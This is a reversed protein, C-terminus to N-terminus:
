PIIMTQPINFDYTDSYVYIEYMEGSVLGKKIKWDDATVSYIKGGDSTIVSTTTACVKNSSKMIYVDNETLGPVSKELSIVCGERSVDNIIFYNKIKSKKISISYITETGDCSVSVVTMSENVPIQCNKKVIDGEYLIEFSGEMPPNLADELEFVKTGEKVILYPKQEGKFMSESKYIVINHNSVTVGKTRYVERGQFFTMMINTKAIDKKPVAFLNKEIIVLDASKGAEITGTIDELFTAYAGNITTSKIMTKLDVCEKEPNDKPGLPYRYEPNKALNMFPIDPNDYPITRTVGCQIATLPSNPSTVPWDSSSAVIVGKEVLSKMPYLKNTRDEGLVSFYMRNIYYDDRCMWFPQIAGLVEMNAMRQMDTEDVLMLHAIINRKAKKGNNKAFEFADLVKATANDGMAHVHIQFGAKELKECIIKLQEDSWIAKGCDDDTGEFPEKLCSTYGGGDEFLKAANMQFLDGVKDQSRRETIYDIFEDFDKAADEQAKYHNGVVAPHVGYTGRIWMTLLGEKALEKYAEIANSGPILYCDQSLTIGYANAMKQYAQIAVKYQFIEFDPFEKMVMSTAADEFFIGTPEGTFSNREIVGGLPDPTDKTINANELAKSNAWLVHHTSDFFAVPIDTCVSDLEEKTPYKNELNTLNWGNGTIYECDPHERRWRIVADLYEAKTAFQYLNLGFIASTMAQIHTHVDAFGPLVMKGELNIVYTDPGIYGKACEDAGCFVIKGEKIAVAQATIEKGNLDISYVYGNLLVTDAFGLSCYDSKM